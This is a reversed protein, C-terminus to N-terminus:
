AKLAKNIANGAKKLAKNTQQAATTINNGAQNATNVIAKGAQNAAAIINPTSQDAAKVIQPVVQNAVAVIPQAVQNATEVIAQGAQNAVTIIYPTSQHATKVIQPSVQDAVAAIPQTTQPATELITQGVPQLNVQAQPAIEEPAIVIKSLRVKDKAQVMQNITVIENIQDRALDEILLISDAAQEEIQAIEAQQELPNVENSMAVATEKLANEQIDAIVIAASTEIEKIKEQTVSDFAADIDDNFDYNSHEYIDAPMDAEIMEYDSDNGLDSTQTKFSGVSLSMLMLIQLTTLNKMINEKKM